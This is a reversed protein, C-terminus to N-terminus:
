SFEYDFLTHAIYMRENLIRHSGYVKYLGVFIEKELDINIYYMNM